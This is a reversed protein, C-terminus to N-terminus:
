IPPPGGGVPLRVGLGRRGEGDRRVRALARRARGGSAPDRSAVAAADDSDIPPADVVPQYTTPSEPVPAHHIGSVPVAISARPRTLDKPSTRASSASSM